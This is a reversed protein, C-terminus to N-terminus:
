AEGLVLRRLAGWHRLAAARDGQRECLRALNHHAEACHPDRSSADEYTARAEDLRGQDELAVALDFRAVVDDPRAALAARYHAEALALQGAEHELCGLNVHADAHTPDLALARRYAERARAPDDPEFDSGLRVWDDAMLAEGEGGFTAARAAFDVVRRQTPPAFDFCCQGSEPSWLCADDRVMVERGAASISVQSLTGAEPLSERLRALASCVRRPPVRSGGLERLRRLLALDRFSLRLAGRPGRSPVLVGDRVLRRVRAASWGVLAAAEPIGFGGSAQEEVRPM